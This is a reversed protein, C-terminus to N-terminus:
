KTRCELTLQRIESAVSLMEQALGYFNIEKFSAFDPQGDRAKMFGIEHDALSGIEMEAIGSEIDEFERYVIEVLTGHMVYNRLNNLRDCEEICEASRFKKIKEIIRGTPLHAYKHVAEEGIIGDSLQALFHILAFTMKSHAHWIEGVERKINNLLDDDTFIISTFKTPLENM